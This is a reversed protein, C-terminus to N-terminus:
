EKFSKLNYKKVRKKVSAKGGDAIEVISDIILRSDISDEMAGSRIIIKGNENSCLIINQADALMPITANHSIILIQRKGKSEKVAEVLEKNIYSTALNDEPQDIFIPATDKEYGLVLDLLIATKWGPSLEDFNKGDKTIISYKKKNKSEISSYITEKYRKKTKNFKDKFLGEPAIDEYSNLKTVNTMVNNISDLIIEKNLEFNSEITLEHGKSKIPETNYKFKFNKLTELSEYFLNNNEKYDIFYSILNEVHKQKQMVDKKNKSETEDFMEKYNNIIKKIKDSLKKKKFAVEFEKMIEDVNKTLDNMFPNQISISKVMKLADEIKSFDSDDIIFLNEIRKEPLWQLNYNTKLKDQSLLRPFHPISRISKQLREINDVANFLNTFTEKLKSLQQQAMKDLSEDSLFVNRVIDINEIGEESKEDIVKIIYNQYIYHPVYGAPNDVRLDRVGYKKYAYKDYDKFDNTISKYLSDLFLTKGSSSGGIVVNLGPTLNVDIDILENKLEVHKIYDKSFTPEELQYILRTSESLALRLGSFTPQSIMWTPIFEENSSKSDPYKEPHYNDTCTILNIFSNIGLKKFYNLTTDLGKDSRSTFGDFQNYYINREMVTDFVVGKPISKNFTRHSQGGHPLMVFDYSDFAKSIIDIKPIDDEQTVMKKPYLKDLICNIEDINNIIDEKQINFYIHCHYPDCEDYNIIHLEVGLIVNVTKLSILEEYAVKNVTNHDTLSLLVNDSKCFSKVRMVLSSVDYNINLKDANESTHIHLDTYIAKM